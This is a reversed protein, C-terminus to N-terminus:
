GTAWEFSELYERLRGASPFRRAILGRKLGCCIAKIEPVQKAYWNAGGIAEYLVGVLQIVDERIKSPGAAGWHFFDVLKVVYHVGRRRVLINDTHIDGHYEGFNHICELGSAIAHLLHLAEFAQLRRGPQKRIFDALLEGEVLESILCTLNMNKYRITESNHYQITIACDRLRDLKTAYFKVARDRANRQPFFIKAARPIGTKIEVVKYVEGEWGGGLLSEFVYKGALRRGPQFGFSDIKPLRKAM